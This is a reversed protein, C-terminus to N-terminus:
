YQLKAGLLFVTATYDATPTTSTLWEQRVEGKIAAYRNLKYTLAGSVSYRDDKRNSGVYDDRGYNFKATGVLWRRFAHEVEIGANRTLTGATGPTTSEGATTTATLKFKTLATMSYILSADFLFGNLEQLSADSYRRNIWGISAEGTLKRTFEFTSGGKLTWGVSDRQIGSRDFQIDHERTDGAAEVFPKLGPMLDYSTRVSGGYRNFNRDDNSGSTGDTFQSAQYETREVTGKTTVEIRNFRQQIGGSAGLTTYIPFRSLGAQVNPSGPNDTGVVATGEGILATDRLVDFRGTIKGDFGPRDLEPTKDYATYSGRLTATMEHRSWNSRAILEPSTTVFLSGKGNQSRAPNTDYGGTTELSPLVTFTGVHGGLPAFPDEEVATRRRLLAATSTALQRTSVTGANVGTATGDPIRVLSNRTLGPAATSATAAITNPATAPTPTSFSSTQGTTAPRNASTTTSGPMTTFRTSTGSTGTGTPAPEGNLPPTISLPPTAAAGSAAPTRANRRMAPQRRNISNFGSTGAGSGPPSGLRPAEDILPDSSTPPITSRLDQRRGPRRTTPTRPRDEAADEFAPRLTMPRTAPQALAHATALAALAVGAPLVCVSAVFRRV